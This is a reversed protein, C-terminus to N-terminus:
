SMVDGGTVRGGGREGKGRKVKLYMALNQPTGHEHWGAHCFIHCSLMTAQSNSDRIGGGRHFKVAHMVLATAVWAIKQKWVCYLKLFYQTALTCYFNRMYTSRLIRVHKNTTHVNQKVAQTSERSVRVILCIAQPCICVNATVSLPSTNAQPSLVLPCSPRPFM